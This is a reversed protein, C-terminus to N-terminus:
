IRWHELGFDIIAKLKASAFRDQRYIMNVARNPITFETLLPVLAGSAFDQQLLVEPQM